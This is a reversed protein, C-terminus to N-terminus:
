PRTFEEWASWLGTTMEPRTTMTTAFHSFLRDAAARWGTARAGEAIRSLRVLNRASLANASPMDADFEPRLQLFLDPRMRSADFYAGTAPDLFDSDQRQQLQQAAELWRAYGTSAHLALCADIVAAYDDCVGESRAPGNLWTHTIRHTSSDIMHEFLFGAARQAEALFGPEGLDGSARAIAAIAYGNWGAIVKNDVMPRPRGDRHQRLLSLGRGHVDKPSTIGASLAAENLSRALYLVNREALAREPDSGPPINGRVRIGFCERLLARADNDGRLADDFEASTWSYFAGPVRQRADPDPLSAADESALFGGGEGALRGTMYAITERAVERFLPDGTDRFVSAYLEALLAQDYLMKEFTPVRWEEDIAHRHFGGGVHDRIGGSAMKKLTTTVVRSADQAATAEPFHRSFQHLWGLCPALPFKPLRMTGGHVTDYKYLITRIFGPVNERKLAASGAPADEGAPLSSPAAAPQEDIMQQAKIADRRSQELLYGDTDALWRSRIHKLVSLLTQGDARQGAANPLYSTGFVPLRDANMFLHLPWSPSEGSLLLYRVCANDLAPQEERDVLVPVFNENLFAAISADLFAEREIVECWPSTSFGITLFVPRNLSRARSFAADGWPHWDVPNDAHRQLYPSKELLLREARPVAEAATEVAFAALAALAALPLSHGCVRSGTPMNCPHVLPM